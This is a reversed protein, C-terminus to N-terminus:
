FKAVINSYSTDNFPLDGPYLPNNQVVVVMTAENHHLLIVVRTLFGGRTRGCRNSTAIQISPGCRARLIVNTYTLPPQIDADDDGKKCHDKNKTLPLGAHKQQISVCRPEPDYDYYVTEARTVVHHLFEDCEM